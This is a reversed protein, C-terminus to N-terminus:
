SLLQKRKELTDFFRQRKPEAILRREMKGIFDHLPWESLNFYYKQAIRFLDWPFKLHAHLIRQEPPSLSFHKQYRDVVCDYWERRWQNSRGSEVLIEALDLIALNWRWKKITLCLLGADTSKGFNKRSFKHILFNQKSREQAMDIYNSDELIRYADAADNFIDPFATLFLKDFRTPRVRHKALLAFSNLNEIMNQFKKLLNSEKFKDPILGSVVEYENLMVKRIEIILDVLSTLDTWDHFRIKSLKPLETLWFWSRQDFQSYWNGNALRVPYLFGNFGHQQFLNLVDFQRQLDNEQGAFVWLALRRQSGELLFGDPRFKVFNLITEPIFELIQSDVNFEKFKCLLEFDESKL